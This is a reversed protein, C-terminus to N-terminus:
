IVYSFRYTRTTTSKGNSSTVKFTYDGMRAPYARGGIRREGELTNYASRSHGRSFCGFRPYRDALSGDHEPDFTWGLKAALAALGERRKQAQLHAYWMAAVVAIVVLVIFLAVGFGNM